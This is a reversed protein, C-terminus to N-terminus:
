VTKLGEVSGGGTWNDDNSPRSRMKGYITRRELELTEDVIYFLNFVIEPGGSGTM